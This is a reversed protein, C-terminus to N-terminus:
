RVEGGTVKEQKQFHRQLELIVNQSCQLSESQFVSRSSSASVFHSPLLAESCPFGASIETNVCFLAVEFSMSIFLFKSSHNLKPLRIELFKQYCRTLIFGNNETM